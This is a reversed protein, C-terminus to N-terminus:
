RRSCKPKLRSARWASRMARFRKRCSRPSTATWSRTGRAFSQGIGGEGIPTIIEYVGLRWSLPEEARGRTPRGSVPAAINRLM